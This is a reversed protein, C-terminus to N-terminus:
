GLFGLGRGGASRMLVFNLLLDGRLRCEVFQSDVKDQASIRGGIRLHLTSYQWKHYEDRKM